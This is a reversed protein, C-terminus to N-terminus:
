GFHMLLRQIFYRSIIVKRAFLDQCVAVDIFSPGLRVAHFKAHAKGYHLILWETKAYPDKDIRAWSRSSLALNIPTEVYNIM